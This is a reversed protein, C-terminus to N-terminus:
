MNFDSSFVNLVYEDVAFVENVSNAILIKAFINQVVEKAMDM